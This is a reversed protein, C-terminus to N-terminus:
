EHRPESRRKKGDPWDITMMWGREGGGKRWKKMGRFKWTEVIQGSLGRPGDLLAM